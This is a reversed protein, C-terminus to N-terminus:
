KLRLLLFDDASNRVFAISYLIKEFERRKEDRNM